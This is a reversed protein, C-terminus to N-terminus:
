DSEEVWGYLITCQTLRVPPDQSLDDPANGAMETGIFSFETSGGAANSRAIERVHHIIEKCITDARVATGGDNEYTPDNDADDQARATAILSGTNDSGPGTEGLFSYGTENPSTENSFSIILSPYTSGVNEISDSLPLSGDNVDYGRTETDDWESILLGMFEDERDIVDAM